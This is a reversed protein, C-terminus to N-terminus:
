RTADGSVVYDNIGDKFYSDPARDRLAAQLQDRERLVLVRAQRRLHLRMQRLDIPSRGFNRRQRAGVLRPRMSDARWSWINRAWFQPLVHLLAAEAARNHITMQMLIDDLTPRPM